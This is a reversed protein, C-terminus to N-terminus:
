TTDGEFLPAFVNTFIKLSFSTMDVSRAGEAEGM